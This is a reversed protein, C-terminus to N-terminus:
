KRIQPYLSFNLTFFLALMFCLTSKPLASSASIMFLMFAMYLAVASSFADPGLRTHLGQLCWFTQSYLHVVIPMFLSDLHYLGLIM